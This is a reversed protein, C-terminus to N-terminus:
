VTSMPTWPGSTNRSIAIINLFLKPCMSRSTVMSSGFAYVGQFDNHRDVIRLGICLGPGAVFEGEAQLGIVFNALIEAHGGFLFREILAHSIRGASYDIFLSSM